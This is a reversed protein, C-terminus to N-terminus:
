YPLVQQHNPDPSCPFPPCSLFELSESMLMQLPQPLSPPAPVPWCHPRTPDTSKVMPCSQTAPLVVAPAVRDPLIFISPHITEFRHSLFIVQMPDNRRYGKHQITCLSSIANGKSDSFRANIIQTSQRSHLIQNCTRTCLTHRFDAFSTHLKYFSTENSQFEEQTFSCVLNKVAKQDIPWSQPPNFTCIPIDRPGMNGKKLNCESHRQYDCVSYFIFYTHISQFKNQTSSWSFFLDDQFEKEIVNEIKRRGALKQKNTALECVFVPM